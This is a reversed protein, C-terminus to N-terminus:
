KAGLHKKLISISLVHLELKNIKFGVQHNINLFDALV